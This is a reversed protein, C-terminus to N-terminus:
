PESYLECTEFDRSFDRLAAPVESATGSIIFAPEARPATKSLLDRSYILYRDCLLDYGDKPTEDLMRCKSPEISTLQPQLWLVVLYKDSPLPIGKAPIPHFQTDFAYRFKVTYGPSAGVAMFVSTVSEDLTDCIRRSLAGDCAAEPSLYPGPRLGCLDSVKAIQYDNDDTGSNQAFGNASLRPQALVLRFTQVVPRLM